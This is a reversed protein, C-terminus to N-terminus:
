ELSQLYTVVAKLDRPSLPQPPMKNGPKVTQSNAVWGAMHGFDNPIAGGALRERSGVHTLDPGLKGNASTGRLTHCTACSSTTVVREGQRRTASTAARVGESQTALWRRFKAEPEAVVSFAMHAHELGCYEACQGRYTGAKDASIWTRNVRNPLLDMKPMLQPVWFSHIVDASRLQLRVPRGVPIHIENATVATTGAYRVEWWWQHGTVEVTLKPATKPQSDAAISGVSLAFTAALVIAPVVVGFAIVFGRAEGTRVKGTRRRFIAAFVAMAIVVVCFFLAVAFLIWWSWAVQGAKQGFPSLASPSRGDCASVSSILLLGSVLVAARRHRRLTTRGSLTSTTAPWPLVVKIRNYVGRPAIRGFDTAPFAFSIRTQPYGVNVWPRLEAGLM